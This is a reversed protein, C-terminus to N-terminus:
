EEFTHKDDPVSPWKIVILETDKMFEVEAIEYPEYIFTHGAGLVYGSAILLGSVIYTLETSHHHTHIQGIEGERHSHHAVEFDQTRFIAKPFDGVLWGKHTTSINGIKM